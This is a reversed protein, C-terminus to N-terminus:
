RQQRARCAALFSAVMNVAANVGVTERYRDPSPPKEGMVEDHFVAVGSQFLWGFLGAGDLPTLKVHEYGGKEVAISLGFDIRTGVGEPARIEMTMVPRVGRARISRVLALLEVNNSKQFVGLTVREWPADKSLQKPKKSKEGAELPALQAVTFHARQRSAVHERSANSYVSRREEVVAPPVSQPTEEVVPTAVVDAADSSVADASAVETQGSKSPLDYVQRLEGLVGETRMHDDGAPAENLVAAGDGEPPTDAAVPVKGQLVQLGALAHNPAQDPDRYGHAAKVSQQANM